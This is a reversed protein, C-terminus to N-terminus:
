VDRIAARVRDTTEEDMERIGHATRAHQAGKELVEEETAGRAVYDCGEMVDGCRLEKSM